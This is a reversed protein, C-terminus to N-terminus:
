YKMNHEKIYNVDSALLMNSVFLKEQDDKLLWLIDRQVTMSFDSKTHTKINFNM